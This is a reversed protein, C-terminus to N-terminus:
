CHYFTIVCYQTSLPLTCLTRCRNVVESTGNPYVGAQVQQEVTGSRLFGVDVVGAAVAVLVRSSTNTLIVARRDVCLLLVISCRTLATTLACAWVCTVHGVHPTLESLAMVKATSTGSLTVVM